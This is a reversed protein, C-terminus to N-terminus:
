LKPLNRFVSKGFKEGVSESSIQLTLQNFIEV